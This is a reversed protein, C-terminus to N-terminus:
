VLNTTMTPKTKTRNGFAFTAAQCGHPDGDLDIYVVLFPLSPITWHKISHTISQQLIPSDIDLITTFELEVKQYFRQQKQKNTRRRQVYLLDRQRRTYQPVHRGHLVFPSAFDALRLLLLVFLLLQPLLLHKLMTMFFSKTSFNYWDVRFRIEYFYFGVPIRCHNPEQKGVHFRFEATVGVTGDDGTSM